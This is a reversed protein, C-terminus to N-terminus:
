AVLVHRGAPADRAGDLVGLVAGLEGAAREGPAAPEGDYARGFAGRAARLADRWEAWERGAGHKSPPPASAEVTALARRWAWEFCLGRDRHAALECRLM